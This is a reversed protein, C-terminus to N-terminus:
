PSVPDDPDPDPAIGKEAAERSIRQPRVRNPDYPMDADKEAAAPIGHTPAQPTERPVTNTANPQM